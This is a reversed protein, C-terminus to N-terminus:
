NIKDKFQRLPDFLYIKPLIFKQEEWVMWPFDPEESNIGFIELFAKKIDYLTARGRKLVVHTDIEVKFADITFQIQFFPGIEDVGFVKAERFGTKAIASVLFNMSIPNEGISVPFETEGDIVFKGYIAVENKLLNGDRLEQIKGNQNVTFKKSLTNYKVNIDTNINGILSFTAELKDLAKFRKIKHEKGEKDILSVGKKENFDYEYKVDLGILPHAQFTAEIITAIEGSDQPIKYIGANANIKPYLIAFELGTAKEIKETTKKVKKLVRQLKLAKGQLAKGRSLYLIALDVALSIMVMQYIIFYMYTRYSNLATYDILKNGDYKAHLGLRAYTRDDELGLLKIVKVLKSEPYFMDFYTKFPAYIWQVADKIYDKYKAYGSVLNVKENQFYLVNEEKIGYNFHLAWVMDPYIYFSPTRTYRCSQIGIYLEVPAIQWTLYQALFTEESWAQYPYAAIFKLQQETVTGEITFPQVEPFIASNTLAKWVGKGKEYVIPAINSLNFTNNQHKVGSDECSSVVAALDITVPTTNNVNGAVLEYVATTNDACLDFLAGNKEERLLNFPAQDGVTLRISTYKCDEFSQTILPQQKVKVVQKVYKHEQEELSFDGKYNVTFTVERKLVPRPDQTHTNHKDSKVPELTLKLTYEKLSSETDEGPEHKAKYAWRIDAVLEDIIDLNYDKSPNEMDYHEPLHVEKYYFYGEGMDYVNQGECFVEIKAKYNFVNHLRLHLDMIDGYVLEQEVHDTDRDIIGTKQVVSQKEHRKKVYFSLIQPKDVAIIFAGQAGFEPTYNIGELWIGAGLHDVKYAFDGLAIEETDRKTFRDEYPNAPFYKKGIEKTSEFTYHRYDKNKSGDELYAKEYKTGINLNNLFTHLAVRNNRTKGSKTTTKFDLWEKSKFKTHAQAVWYVNEKTAAENKAKIVKLKFVVKTNVKIEYYLYSGRLRPKVMGYPPEAYNAIIEKKYTGM